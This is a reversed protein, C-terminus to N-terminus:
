RLLDTLEDRGLQEFPADAHEHAWVITGVAWRGRAARIFPQDTDDPSRGYGDFFTDRLNPHGIWYRRSLLLFDSTWHDRQFRAFDFLRVVEGDVLWNRPSFDGHCAVVSIPTGELQALMERVAALEATTVLGDCRAAYREFSSRMRSGLNSDVSAPAGDHLQRLLQAARRHTTPDHDHELQALSGPLHTIAIIHRADDHALLRPIANGLVPAAYHYGAREREFHVAQRFSKVVIREGSRLALSLVLAEGHPWSHDAVLEVSGFRDTAWEILVTQDAFSV